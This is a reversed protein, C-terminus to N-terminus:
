ETLAALDDFFRPYSKRVAEWGAVTVGPVSLALVGAAMAVRHDGAASVTGGCLARGGAVRFGDALPEAEGGVARVLAVTAAIRDSEKLRLHPAGAVTTTGTALAGLAGLLPAVDPCSAVDEAHQTNCEPCTRV